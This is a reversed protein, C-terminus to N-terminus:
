FIGGEFDKSNGLHRPIQFIGWIGPFRSFEGFVKSDPSNGLYRLSDSPLKNKLYLYNRLHGAIQSIEWIGLPKLFEGFIWDNLFSEFDKFYVM